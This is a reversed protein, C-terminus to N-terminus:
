RSVQGRAVICSAPTYVQGAVEGRTRTTRSWWPSTRPTSIEQDDCSSKSYARGGSTIPEFREFRVVTSMARIRVVHPYFYARRRPGRVGYCAYAFSDSTEVNGAVYSVGRRSSHTPRDDYYRVYQECPECLGCPQSANSLLATTRRRAHFAPVLSRDDAELFRRHYDQIGLRLLRRPRALSELRPSVRDGYHQLSESWRLRDPVATWCRGFTARPGSMTCGACREGNEPVDGLGVARCGTTRWGLHAIPFHKGMSSHAEAERSAWRTSTRHGRRPGTLSAVTGPKM